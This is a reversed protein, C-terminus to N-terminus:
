KKVRTIQINWIIINLTNIQICLYYFIDRRM